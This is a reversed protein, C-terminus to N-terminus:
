ERKDLWTALLLLGGVVAAVKVLDPSMGPAAPAREASPDISAVRRSPTAGNNVSKSAAGTTDSAGGSFIAYTPAMAAGKTSGSGTVLRAASAVTGAAGGVQKAVGVASRVGDLVSPGAAFGYESALGAGTTADVLGGGYELLAADSLGVAGTEAAFAPGALAAAFPLAFLYPVPSRLADFFVNGDDPFRERFLADNGHPDLAYEERSIGLKQAQFGYGRNWWEVGAPTAFFAPDVYEEAGDPTPLRV